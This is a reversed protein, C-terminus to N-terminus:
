LHLTNPELFFFINRIQSFTIFDLDGFIDMLVALSEYYRHGKGSFLNKLPMISYYLM